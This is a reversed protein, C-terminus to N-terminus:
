LPLTETEKKGDRTWVQQPRTGSPQVQLGNPNERESLVPESPGQREGSDLERAPRCKFRGGWVWLDPSSFIFLVQSCLNHPSKSLDCEYTRAWPYDTCHQNMQSSYEIFDYLKRTRNKKRPTTTRYTPEEIGDLTIWALTVSVLWELFPLLARNLMQSRSCSESASRLVKM